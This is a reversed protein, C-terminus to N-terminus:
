KINDSYIWYVKPNSLRIGFFTKSVIINQKNPNWFYVKIKLLDLSYAFDPLYLTTVVPVWTRVPITNTDIVASQWLLVSDKEISAVLYAKNDFQESLYVWASIDITQAYSYIEGRNIFEYQVSYEANSDIRYVRGFTSDDILNNSEFLWNDAEKFSNFSLFSYSTYLTSSNKSFLRIEGQDLYYHLIMHPFYEHCLLFLHPMNNTVNSIYLYKYKKDNLLKYLEKYSLQYLYFINSSHKIKYKKIYYDGIEKKFGCLVLTSDNNVQKLKVFTQSYISKYFNNYHDRTVILSYILLFAWITILIFNLKINIKELFSFVFLILFPTSFILVSIQLVPARYISYVYGIIASSTALYLTIFHEKKIKQKTKSFYIVGGLGMAMAFLLVILNFHTLFKFFNAFFYFNPKGLWGLGQLHFQYLYIKFHPILLLAIILNSFLYFKINKKSVYFLGLFGILVVMLLSFYHNYACLTAGIIYGLANKNIQKSIQNDNFLFRYWYLVMILTFFLGSTYPRAIQSYMIFYQMFALSVTAWLAVQESFWETGIKWILFLSALGMLMFPLKVWPESFGVVKLWYYLFLQVGAPHGDPMIGKEILETFSAFRTRFLASFEDHTFPIEFFNWFRLFSAVIIIFWLFWHYQRNISKTKLIM